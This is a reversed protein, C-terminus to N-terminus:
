LVMFPPISSLPLDNVSASGKLINVNGTTQIVVVQSPGESVATTRVSHVFERTPRAGVPLTFATNGAGSTGDLRGNLYCLGDKVRYELVDPSQVSWGSTLGTINQWGTDWFRKVFGSGANHYLASDTTNSWWQGVAANPSAAWATMEATTGKLVNGRTVAWRAVEELDPGTAPAGSSPFAPAGEWGSQTGSSAM